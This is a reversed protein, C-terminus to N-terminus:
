SMNGFCDEWLNHWNVNWGIGHPISREGLGKGTSPILLKYFPGHGKIPFPVM